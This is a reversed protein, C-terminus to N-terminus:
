VCLKYTLKFKQDQIDFIGLFILQSNFAKSFCQDQLDFFSNCRLGISKDRRRMIENENIIIAITIFKMFKNIDRRYKSAIINHMTRNIGINIIDELAGM